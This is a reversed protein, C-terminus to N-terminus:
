NFTPTPPTPPRVRPTRTRDSDPRSSPWAVTEPSARALIGTAAGASPAQRTSIRSAEPFAAFGLSRYLRETSRHCGPPRGPARLQGQGGHRHGEGGAPVGGGSRGIRGSGEPRGELTPVVRGGIGQ